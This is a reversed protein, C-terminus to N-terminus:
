LNKPIVMERLMRRQEAFCFAMIDDCIDSDLDTFKVAVVYSDPLAKIRVVMGHCSIVKHGPEPIHIDLALIEKKILPQDVIMMMGGCSINVGGAQFVKLDDSNDKETQKQCYFISLRGAPGRFHKRKNSHQIVERARIHIVGNTKIDTITCLITAVDGSEIFVLCDSNLNIKEPPPFTESLVRIEMAPPDNVLLRGTKKIQQGSTTTVNFTVSIHKPLNLLYDIAEMGAKETQHKNWPKESHSGTSNGNRNRPLIV